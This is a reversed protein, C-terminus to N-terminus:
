ITMGGDICFNGGTIYASADCALFLALLGVERLSGSRGLPIDDFRRQRHQSLQEPSMQGPDPFVGPSLTNVRVGYPGWEMALSETFRTIGAKAAAYVTMNPRAQISAFSSVNVVSGRRRDLLHPGFARCGQYVSSLNLDLYAGWDEPTLAEGPEDPLPVLPRRFSEGVSNALIDVPGFEEVVRQALADMDAANTADVTFGASRRGMGSIEQAAEQVRTSTRAVVAVDAGAEALVRAIGRGIGRSGGIVVANRGELSFEPLTM